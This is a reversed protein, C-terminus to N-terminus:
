QKLATAIAFSVAGVVMMLKPDLSGPWMWDLFGVTVFTWSSSQYPNMRTPM